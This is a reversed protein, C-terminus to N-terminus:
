KLCCCEELSKSIERCGDTVLLSASRLIASLTRTKVSKEDKSVVIGLYKVEKKVHINYLPQVPYDHLTPIECKNLNLWVGSAKSFKQISNLALPSQDKNKSFLTTDDALQSIILDRGKVNIGQVQSIEIFYGVNRCGIYVTITLQWM